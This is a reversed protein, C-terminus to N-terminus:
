RWVVVHREDAKSEGVTKMGLDAAVKHQFARMSGTAPPLKLEEKSREIKFEAITRICDVAVTELKTHALIAFLFTTQRSWTIDRLWVMPHTDGRQKGQWMQRGSTLQRVAESIEAFRADEGLVWTGVFDLDRGVERRVSQIFFESRISLRGTLACLTTQRQFMDIERALAAVDRVHSELFRRAARKDHVFQDSVLRHQNRKAAPAPTVDLWIEKLGAPLLSASKAWAEILEPHSWTSADGWYCTCKIRDAESEYFLGLCIREFQPTHTRAKLKLTQLNLNSISSPFSIYHSPSWMDIVPGMDM